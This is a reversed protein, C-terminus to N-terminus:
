FYYQMNHLQRSKTTTSFSAAAPQTPRSTSMAAAPLRRHGIMPMRRRSFVTVGRCKGVIGFRFDAIQKSVAPM